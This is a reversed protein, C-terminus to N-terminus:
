SFLAMVEALPPIEPIDRLHRYRPGSECDCRDDGCYVFCKKLSPGPDFLTM